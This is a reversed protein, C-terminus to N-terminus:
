PPAEFSTPRSRSFVPVSDDRTGGFWELARRLALIVGMSAVSLAVSLASVNPGPAFHLYDHIRFAITDGNPVRLLAAADVDRAALLFTLLAGVGLSPALAPWGVVRLCTWESGGQLRCEEVLVPDVRSWAAACLHHCVPYCLIAYGWILAMPTDYIAGLPDPRNLLDILALAPLSGPLVLPATVLLSLTTSQAGRSAWVLLGATIPTILAAASAFLLTNLFHDSSEAWVAPYTALPMSRVLVMASPAGFTMLWSIALAAIPSRARAETRRISERTVDVSLIGADGCRRLVQTFLWLLPLLSLVLPIALRISGASDRDLQFRNVIAVPYAVVGLANPVGFDAAALAFVLVSSAALAISAPRRAVFAVASTRPLELAASDILDSGVSRVVRSILLAGLPWYASALVVSALVECGYYEPAPVHLLRCVAAVPGDPELLLIWALAMVYPPVTLPWLLLDDMRQASRRSRMKLSAHGWLWGGPAALAAAGVAIRLTRALVSLPVPEAQGPGCAAVVLWAMPLGVLLLGPVGWM